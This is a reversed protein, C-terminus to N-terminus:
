PADERAGRAAIPGLVHPVLGELQPPLLEVLQPSHEDGDLVLPVHFVEDLAQEAVLLLLDLLAPAQMGHPRAARM